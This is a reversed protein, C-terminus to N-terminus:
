GPTGLELELTKIRDRIEAAKEFKESKVMTTLDRKLRVLENEKRIETDASQPVKGVHQTSGHIKELLPVLGEQFLEYDQSCGLRAKSKFQSYGFGCHSCKLKSTEKSGKPVKPEMLNGLIDSVSFTFKINVGSSNACEQCLHAERKEKNVLETLHVTAHSNKCKECIM